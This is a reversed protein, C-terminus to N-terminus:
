LVYTSSLVTHSSARPPPVNMYNANLRLQAESEEVYAGEGSDIPPGPQEDTTPLQLEGKGGEGDM